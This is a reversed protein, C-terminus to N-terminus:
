SAARRARPLVILDLALLLLALVILWWQWSDASAAPTERPAPRAGPARVPVISRGPAFDVFGTRGSFGGSVAGTHLEARGHAGPPVQWAEGDPDIRVPTPLRTLDGASGGIGQWSVRALPGQPLPLRPRLAEGSRYFPKLPAVQAEALRMVARRLFLPLATRIALDSGAPDLGLVVYRVGDQEGEAVIAADDAYALPTLGSGTLPTAQKVYASSFDLWRVLPHHKETRWVLPDRITGGVEFPLAGALPALFVYAGPRLTGPPLAVGDVIVVDRPETAAFDTAKVRGSRTMDIAPAMQDLVLQTFARPASGTVVLVSPRRPAVLWASVSDNRRFADAGDLTLTLWAGDGAPAPATFSITAGKVADIPLTEDFVTQDGLTGIVRRRVTESAQTRVHARVVHGAETEAVALDDFGEDSRARGAGVVTLEVGERATEDVPRASIVLVRGPGRRAAQEAAWDIAEDIDVDTTAPAQLPSEGPRRPRGAVRERLDLVARAAVEREATPPAVVELPAGALVVGVQGEDHHRVWAAALELGEILRPTGGSELAGTTVDADVVVILDVPAKTARAPRIGGIALVLAALAVLRMLLSSAERLFRFRARVPAPGLAERLLGIFPVIVRQRRRAYLHFILIPVGLLLGWLAVPRALELGNM